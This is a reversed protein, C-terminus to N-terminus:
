LPVRIHEFTHVATGHLLVTEKCSYKQDKGRDHHDHDDTDTGTIVPRLLRIHFRFFFGDDSIHRFIFNYIFVFKYRYFYFLLDRGVDHFFTKMVHPKLSM